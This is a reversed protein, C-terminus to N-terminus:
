IQANLSNEGVPKGSGDVMKEIRTNESFKSHASHTNITVGFGISQDVDREGAPKGARDFVVSSSSQSVSMGEPECYDGQGRHAETLLKSLTVDDMDQDSSPIMFSFPVSSDNLEGFTLLKPEYGTLSTSVDYADESEKNAPYCLSEMVIPNVLEPYLECHLYYFSFSLSSCTSTSLSFRTLSPAGHITHLLNHPSESSSGSSTHSSM